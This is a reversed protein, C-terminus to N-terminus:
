GLPLLALGVGGLALLMGLAAIVRSGARRLLLYSLSVVAMASFAAGIWWLSHGHAAQGHLLAHIAMAVAVVAAALSRLLGHGPRLRRQLLLLLGLASVSCAALLEAAPLSGGFGGLLGGLLAGLLAAPLLRPDLKAAAAGVGVLLLLHDLGTLPHLAGAVAGVAALGHAQVPLGSLLSLGFGAAAALALSRFTAM